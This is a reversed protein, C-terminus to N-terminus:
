IVGRCLEKMEGLDVHEARVFYLCYLLREEDVEEELIVNIYITESREM